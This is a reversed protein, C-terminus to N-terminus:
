ETDKKPLLIEGEGFLGVPYDQALVEATLKRNNRDAQPYIKSIVGEHVTSEGDITYRFIQGARVRHWYRQDYTVLLKRKHRSQLVFATRPAVGSVVDGVEIQKATIMGDFPAKLITKDLLSRIYAVQAKANDYQFQYQELKAQQIVHKIELQRAYERKAHAMAIEAISLKAKLDANALTALREGQRVSDTIDVAVSQIIGGASFALNAQKYAHVTFTAYINEAQLGLTVLLATLIYKTVIHM